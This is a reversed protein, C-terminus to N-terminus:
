FTSERIGRIRRALYIDKTMVTVRKAHIACLNADEFLHILYYEAAEQLAELALSQWRMPTEGVRVFGDAIEKVLRAFPLRRLLLHTTRQYKRIEQLARTGPRFRRTKRVPTGPTAPTAPQKRSRPIITSRRNKKRAPSPTAAPEEPSAPTRPPAVKSRAKAPTAAGKSKPSGKASQGGPQHTQKPM